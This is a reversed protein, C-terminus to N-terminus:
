NMIVADIVSHDYRDGSEIFGSAWKLGGSMDSSYPIVGWGREECAKKIAEFATEGEIFEDVTFMVRYKNM